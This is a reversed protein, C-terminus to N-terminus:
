LAKSHRKKFFSEQVCTVSAVLPLVGYLPLSSQLFTELPAASFAFIDQCECSFQTADVVVVGQQGAPLTPLPTGPTVTTVTGGGAVIQNINNTADQATGQVENPVTITTPLGSGGPLTVSGSM